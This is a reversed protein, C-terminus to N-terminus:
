VDYQNLNKLSFQIQLTNLKQVPIYQFQKQFHNKQAKNQTRYFFM